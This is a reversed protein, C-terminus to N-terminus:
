NPGQVLLALLVQSHMLFTLEQVQGLVEWILLESSPSLLRHTLLGELPKQPMSFNSFWWNHNRYRAQSLPLSASAM